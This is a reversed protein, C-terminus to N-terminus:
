VSETYTLIGFLLVIIRLQPDAFWQSEALQADPAWSKHVDKVKIIEKSPANTYTKLKKWCM